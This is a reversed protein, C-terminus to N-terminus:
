FLTILKLGEKLLGDKLKVVLVSALVLLKKAIRETENSKTLKNNKM